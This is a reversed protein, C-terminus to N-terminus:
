RCTWFYSLYRESQAQKEGWESSARKEHRPNKEWLFCTTKSCACMRDAL